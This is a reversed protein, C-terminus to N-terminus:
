SVCFGADVSGAIDSEVTTVEGPASGRRGNVM